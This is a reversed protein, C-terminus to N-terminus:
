EPSSPPRNIESHMHVFPIFAAPSILALLYVFIFAQVTLVFVPKNVVSLLLDKLLLLYYLFGRRFDSYMDQIQVLLFPRFTVLSRLNEDLCSTAAPAFPFLFYQLINAESHASATTRTAGSRERCHFKGRNICAQFSPGAKAVPLVTTIFTASCVGNVARYTALRTM